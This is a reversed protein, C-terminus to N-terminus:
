SPLAFREAAAVATCDREGHGVFGGGGGFGERADVRLVERRQQPLQAARQEDRRELGSADDQHPRAVSRDVRVEDRQRARHPEGGVALAQEDARVAAHV